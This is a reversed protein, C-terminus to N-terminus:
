FVFYGDNSIHTYSIRAPREEIDSIERTLRNITIEKMDERKRSPQM